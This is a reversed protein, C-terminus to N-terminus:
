EEDRDAITGPIIWSSATVDIPGYNIFDFVQEDRGDFGYSCWQSVFYASYAEDM